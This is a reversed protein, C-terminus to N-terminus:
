SNHLIHRNALQLTISVLRQHIDKEIPNTTFCYTCKLKQKITGLTGIMKARNSNAAVKLSESWMIKKYFWFFLSLRSQIKVSTLLPITSKNLRCYPKGPAKSDSLLQADRPTRSTSDVLDTWCLALGVLTLCVLSRTVLGATQM